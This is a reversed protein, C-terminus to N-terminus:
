KILLVPNLTSNNKMEKRVEFHIHHGDPEMLSAAKEPNGGELAINQGQTVYQNNTVNVVSLNGYFTYLIMGNIEHKIMIENGYKESHGIYCVYGDAAALVSDQYTYCAIDIGQHSLDYRYTIDGNAPTILTDKCNKYYNIGTMYIISDVIGLDSSFTPSSYNQAYYERKEDLKNRLFTIPKLIYLLCIVLIFLIVKKNLLSNKTNSIFKSVDINHKRTKFKKKKPKNEKTSIEPENTIGLYTIDNGM